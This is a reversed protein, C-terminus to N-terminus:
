SGVVVLGLFFGMRFVERGWVLEVVVGGVELVVYGRVLFKGIGELFNFLMEFRRGRFVLM